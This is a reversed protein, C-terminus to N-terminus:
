NNQSADEIEKSPTVLKSFRFDQRGRGNSAAVSQGKRMMALADPSRLLALLAPSDIAPKWNGATLEEVIFDGVTTYIM